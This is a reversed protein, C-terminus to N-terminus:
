GLTVYGAVDVLLDAVGYVYLCVAGAPSVPALVGGAIIENSRFNQNSAYPRSGCPYVTLFGGDSSTETDVVTVNLWVASVQSDNDLGLLDVVPVELPGGSGDVAGIRSDSRTDVLRRATIAELAAGAPVYGSVDVIVHAAGEVDVCVTGQPSVPILVSNPVIQRDATFNLHSVDPQDGCDSAVAFGPGDRLETGTLTLNAIVATVGTSPVGGRGLVTAEVRGTVAPPVVGDDSRRTDLMRYPVVPTVQSTSPLYGSVDAILHGDGHIYLCVSGTDSVPVIVSNAVTDGTFFNLNSAEPMTGCPYATVFGGSEDTIPDAVTVSLAVASVGTGPLGGEGAVPFEVMTYSVRGAVGNGIGGRTDLLRYPQVPVFDTETGREVWSPDVLTLMQDRVWLSFEAQGTTTLHVDDSFWRDADDADSADDWDLFILNPWRGRADRIAQTHGAFRNDGDVVDRESPGIWAVTGVNREALVTMMEDIGDPLSALSDNYGLEVVVLDTGQAVRAAADVGSDVSGGATRRNVIADFSITSFVGDLVVPLEPGYRSDSVSAGVSNGIFAASQTTLVGRRLPTVTYGPSPLGFSRRFDWTSEYVSSTDSGRLRVRNSWIGVYDSNPDVVTTVRTPDATPYAELLEDVSIIRTWRHNPNLAVSDGTDVVSPFYGGATVPGNSASFETSVVEGVPQNKINGEAWVRVVGATDIIAQDTQPREVLSPTSDTASSRTASGGYVQCSSTDCTGAYPYRDQRVGYSRAAVAQARLANMGAGDGRDGWSASVEKPVVGRLYDSLAVVNIVRVGYETRNVEIAGRYHRIAGSDSCLGAVDGPSASADVDVSVTVPGAIAEAVRSWGVDDSAGAIMTRAAAAEEASWVGDAVLGRDTQFARVASETQPGFLGDIEWRREDVVFGFAQLFTQMRVVASTETTNIELPGDPVTLSAAGPCAPADGVWVDFMGDDRSVVRVASLGTGGSISPTSWRALGRTSIVGVDAADDAGTLRVRMGTSPDVSGATTGGYYHDLIQEWDWGHEVAWGYAGWQSLGRGHGNGTGEILYAVVDTVSPEDATVAGAPVLLATAGVVVSWATLVRRRPSM